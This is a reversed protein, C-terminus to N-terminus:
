GARRKPHHAVPRGVALADSERTIARANVIQEEHLVVSTADSLQRPIDVDCRGSPGSPACIANPPVNSGSRTASASPPETRAKVLPLYM